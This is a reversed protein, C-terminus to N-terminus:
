HNPSGSELTGLRATAKRGKKSSFSFLDVKQFLKNSKTVCHTVKQLVLGFGM